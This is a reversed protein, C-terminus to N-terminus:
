KQQMMILMIDRSAATKLMKFKIQNTIVNAKGHGAIVTKACSILGFM